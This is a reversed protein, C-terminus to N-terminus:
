MMGSLPSYITGTRTILEREAIHTHLAMIYLDQQIAVNNYYIKDPRDRTGSDYMLSHM